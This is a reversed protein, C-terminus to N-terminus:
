PRVSGLNRGGTAYYSVCDGQNKFGNGLSDHMTRWAGKKCNAGNAATRETVAVNDLAPGANGATGSAFTLVTTASTAVFSYRQLVWGMNADNHGTIDFTVTMPVAGTASVTLTKVTPPGDPNGALYFSVVYKKGITTTLTQSIAGASSGSLDLSRSGAESTWLGNIWDIDGSTVTWGSIVTASPTGAVLNQYSSGTFTGAEFSGNTVGGFALASGALAISAVAAIAAGVISRRKM